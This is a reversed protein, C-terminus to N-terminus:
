DFKDLIGPQRDIRQTFADLLQARGVHGNVLGIRHGNELGSALLREVQNKKIRWKGDITVLFQTSKKCFVAPKRFSGPNVELLAAALM